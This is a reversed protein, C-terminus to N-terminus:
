TKNNIKQIVELIKKARKRAPEVLDEDSPSFTKKLFKDIQLATRELYNLRWSDDPAKEGWLKRPGEFGGEALYWDKIYQFGAKFLLSGLPTVAPPFGLSLSKVTDAHIKQEGEYSVMLHGGPPIMDGLLRFLKLGSESKNLSYKEQRNKPDQFQVEDRYDIDMWPQVGDKGGSSYIGKIVPYASLIDRPNRLFLKFGKWGSLRLQKVEGLHLRFDNVSKNHLRNLPHHKRNSNMTENFFTNFVKQFPNV